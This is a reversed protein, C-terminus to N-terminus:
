GDHGTVVEGNDEVIRCGLNQKLPPLLHYYSPWSHLQYLNLQNREKIVFNYAVSVIELRENERNKAMKYTNQGGLM